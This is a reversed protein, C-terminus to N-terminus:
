GIKRGGETMELIKQKQPWSMGRTSLKKRMEARQEVPVDALTQTPNGHADRKTVFHEELDKIRAELEKFKSWPWIKM